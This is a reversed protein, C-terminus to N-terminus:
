IVQFLAVSCFDPSLVLLFLIRTEIPMVFQLLQLCIVMTLSFSHARLDIEVSCARVEMAALVLDILSQGVDIKKELCDEVIHILEFNRFRQRGAKGFNAAQLHFLQTRFNVGGGADEACCRIRGSM